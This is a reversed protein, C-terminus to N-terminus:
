FIKEGLILFTEFEIFLGIKAFEPRLVWTSARTECNLEIIPFFGWYYSTKDHMIYFLSYQYFKWNERQREM